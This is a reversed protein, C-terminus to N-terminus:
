LIMKQFDQGFQVKAVFDLELRCGLILIFMNQFGFVEQIHNTRSQESNYMNTVPLLQEM